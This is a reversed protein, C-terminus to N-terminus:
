VAAGTANCWGTTINGDYWIPVGLTTDFYPCGVPASSPRQSTTGYSIGAGESFGDTNINASGSYNSLSSNKVTITKASTLSAMSQNNDCNLFSYDFDNFAGSRIDCGAFRGGNFTIIGFGQSLFLARYVQCANEVPLSINDNANIFDTNISFLTALGSFDGKKITGGNTALISGATVTGASIECNVAALISGASIDLDSINCNSILTQNPTVPDSNATIPGTLFTIGQIGLVPIFKDIVISENNHGTILIGVRDSDSPSLSDAYTKANVYSQYNKGVSEPIDPNVILIKKLSVGGSASVSGWETGNEDTKLKLYKGGNGSWTERGLNRAIEEFRAPNFIENARSEM